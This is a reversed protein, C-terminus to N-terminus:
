NETTKTNKFQFTKYALISTLIGYVLATFGIINIVLKAGEFPVLLFLLGFSVLFINRIISLWLFNPKTNILFWLNRIGVILAALGLLVIFINTIFAPFLVFIAGVVINAIGEYFWFEPIDPKSKTLIVLFVGSLIVIIGFFRTITKLTVEPNILAALGFLIMILGQIGIVWPNGFRIYTKM